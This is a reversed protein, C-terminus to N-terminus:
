LIQPALSTLLSHLPIIIKHVSISPQTWLSQDPVSLNAANLFAPSPWCGQLLSCHHVLPHILGTKLMKLVGGTGGHLWTLGVAFGSAMSTSAPLFSFKQFVFYKGLLHIIGFLKFDVLAYFLTYQCSTGWLGYEALNEVIWHSSIFFHFWNQFIVSSYKRKMNLYCKMWGVCSNKCNEVKSYVREPCSSLQYFVPTKIDTPGCM